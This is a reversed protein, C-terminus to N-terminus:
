NWYQITAHDQAHLTHTFPQVAAICALQHLVTTPIPDRLTLVCHSHPYTLIPRRTAHNPLPIPLRYLALTAM